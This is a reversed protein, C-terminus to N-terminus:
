HDDELILKDGNELLFYNGSELLIAPEGNVIIQEAIIEETIQSFIESEITEFLPM